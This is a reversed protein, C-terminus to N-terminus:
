RDTESRLALSATSAANIPAPVPRVAHPTPAPAVDLGIVEHGERGLDPALFRGLWGSSGTLLIRM